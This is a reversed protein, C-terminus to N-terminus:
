HFAGGPILFQLFTYLFLYAFIAIITNYIRNKASAAKQPDGQSASYQIGGFILSIVAVLGFSLSFLNIAPNIYQNVLDCHKYRCASAAFAPAPFWFALGLAPMLLSIQKTKKPM